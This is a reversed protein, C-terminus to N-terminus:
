LTAEEHPPTKIRVFLATLMCAEFIRAIIVGAVIGIMGFAIGLVAMLAIKAIPFSFENIYLEKQHGWATLGTKLLVFPTTLLAVLMMQFLLVSAPFKPFILAFFYPSIIIGMLVVPMMLGVMLFTRRILKKKMDANPHTSSLDPLSLQGIPILQELKNFPTVAFTYIAVAIPGLLYWVILTDINFAVIRPAGMVTLHYGFRESSADREYNAPKAFSYVVLGGITQFVFFSGAIIVLSHTFFLVALSPLSFIAQCLISLLMTKRFNKKGQFFSYAMESWTDTMPILPAAVLFTYGLATQGHALYGIGFCLSILSGISGFLLKLRMMSRLSGEYGRAIARILATNMGPLTTISVITLVSLIYNYSGVVEKPALNAMGTIFAFGM